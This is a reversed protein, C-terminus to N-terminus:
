EKGGSGKALNGEDVPSEQPWKFRLDKGFVRVASAGMDSDCIVKCKDIFQNLDSLSFPSTLVLITTIPSGAM